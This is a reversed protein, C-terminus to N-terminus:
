KAKCLWHTRTWTEFWTRLDDVSPPPGAPEDFAAAIAQALPASRSLAQLIHFEAPALRKYYVHNDHRHVALHAPATNIKQPRTRITPIKGHANQVRKRVLLLYDDVAFQITLLSLHPQLSLTLNEPPAAHIDSLSIPPLSPGDFALVHAWELRAMDLAALTDPHTLEPHEELFAPLFQGLDRLTYSKSPCQTLYQRSLNQFRKAGLIARLGPFDDHFCDIIRFWYQRNYIELREFSTLRDNPKIVSEAIEATPRGGEGVPDM